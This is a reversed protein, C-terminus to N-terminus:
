FLLLWRKFFLFCVDSYGHYPWFDQYTTLSMFLQMFYKFLGEFIAVSAALVLIWIKSQGRLKIVQSKEHAWSKFTIKLFPYVQLEIMTIVCLIVLLNM